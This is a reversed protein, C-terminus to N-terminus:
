SGHGNERLRSHLMSLLHDPDIPKPLYDSAGVSICKDKDDKMAKATLAIVPLRHFRADQRIRRIAEYGDMEPMMIDMLVAEIDPHEDLVGLAAQGTDAVFVEAGKARLTASLAYVTRMDDDAVLVRRGELRMGTPRASSAGSRRPALGEKLRRVFLRVEDVLREASPGEKLVIAEAYAELRQTENKSLARATYVVVAPMESGCLKELSRLLELGDMDPLSLDLIVCAFREKKVAELAETASVVHRAELNEAALQKV